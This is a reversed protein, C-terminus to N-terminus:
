MRLPYSAVFCRSSLVSFIFYIASAVSRGGIKGRYCNLKFLLGCSESLETETSSNKMLQMATRERRKTFVCFVLSTYLSKTISKAAVAYFRKIKIFAGRVGKSFVVFYCRLVQTLADLQPERESFM